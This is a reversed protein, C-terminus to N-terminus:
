LFRTLLFAGAIFMGLRAYPNISSGFLAGVFLSVSLLTAGFNRVVGGAFDVKELTDPDEVFTRAAIVVYGSFLMFIGIVALVGYKWVEAGNEIKMAQM